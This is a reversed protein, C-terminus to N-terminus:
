GLRHTKGLQTQPVNSGTAFVVLDYKLRGWEFKFSWFIDPKM